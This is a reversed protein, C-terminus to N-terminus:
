GSGTVMIIPPVNEQDILKRIVELGNSGPMRYDLAVLDFVMEQCASLGQEGDHAIEVNYGAKNLRKQVLRAMAHDDDLYLIHIDNHGMIM